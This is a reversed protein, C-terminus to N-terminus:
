PTNGERGPAAPAVWVHRPNRALVAYRAEGAVVDVVAHPREPARRLRDRSERPRRRHHLPQRQRAGGRVRRADAVVTGCLVPRRVRLSAAGAARGRPARREPAGDGRQRRAHPVAPGVRARGAPQAAGRVCGAGASAGVADTDGQTQPPRAARRVIVYSVLALVIGIVLGLLVAVGINAGGSTATSRVPTAQQVIQGKSVGNQLAALVQLNTSYSDSIQSIQNTIGNAINIASTEATFRELTSLGKANVISNLNANAKKLRDNFSALTQKQTQTLTLLVKEQANPYQNIRDIVQEAVAQSAPAVKDKALGQVVINVLPTYNTKTIAQSLVQSSVHGKLQGPKVGAQAAATAILDDNRILIGPTAPNSGLTINLPSGTPSLPQGLFVLTRATWTESSSGTQTVLAIGVVVVVSIAVIWWRALVRRAYRGLDIEVDDDQQSDQQSM